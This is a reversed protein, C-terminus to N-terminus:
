VRPLTLEICLVEEMGPNQFQNFFFLIRLDLGGVGGLLRNLYGGRLRMRELIGLGAVAARYIVWVRSWLWLRVSGLRTGFWRLPIRGGV